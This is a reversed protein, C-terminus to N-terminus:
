NYTILYIGTSFDIPLCFWEYQPPILGLTAIFIYAMDRCGHLFFGAALMIKYKVIWYYAIFLFLVAQISNVILTQLDTWAFGADLLGIGTLM